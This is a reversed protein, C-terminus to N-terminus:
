PQTKSAYDRLWKKSHKLINSNCISYMFIHMHFSKTAIYICIDSAQNVNFNPAWHTPFIGNNSINSYSAQFQPLQFQPSQPPIQFQSPLQYQSPITSIQNDFPTLNLSSKLPSPSLSMTTHYLSVSILTCSLCKLTPFDLWM